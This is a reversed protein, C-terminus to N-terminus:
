SFPVEPVKTAATMGTIITGCGSEGDNIDKMTLDELKIQESSPPMENAVM